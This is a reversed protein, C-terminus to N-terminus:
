LQVKLIATEELEDLPRLRGEGDYSILQSNAIFYFSDGVIAGTTPVNMLPHYAELPEARVIAEHQEDLYLRSVKVNQIAILSGQYLYCGDGGVTVRPEHQLERFQMTELDLVGIGNGAVFLERGDATIDIGNPRRPLELLLELARAGPALTYVGFVQWDTVYITGDPAITLDNLYHGEVQPLMAKQVLAGTTLDFCYVGTMGLLEAPLHAVQQGYSAAAWLQRRGADVRLGLVRLLGHEREGTFDSFTGDAAVKIIKCKHCSGLYFAHDVPDYAIGEPLLDKEPITFAVTANGTPKTMEQIRAMLVQMQPNDRFGDLDPDTLALSVLDYQQDVLFGLTALTGELNNNRAYACALNYRHQYVDPALTVIQELLRQFEAMDGGQYAATSRRILEAVELAAARSAPETQGSQERQVTGQPCGTILAVTALTTLATLVALTLTGPRLM